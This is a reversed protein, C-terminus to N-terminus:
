EFLAGEFWHIKTPPTGIKKKKIEMNPSSFPDRVVSQIRFERIKLCRYKSIILFIAKRYAYRISHNNHASHETGLTHEIEHLLVTYFNTREHPTASPM